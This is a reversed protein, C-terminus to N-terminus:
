PEVPAVSDRFRRSLITAAWLAVTVGEASVSGVAYPSPDWGHESFGAVGVTRSLVFAVLSGGAVAAAIWFLWRPGGVLILAAVAFSVSAQILFATGITPIHQYGSVYLYAHGTAAVALSATLGVRFMLETTTM